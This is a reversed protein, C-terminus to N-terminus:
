SEAKSAFFGVHDLKCVVSNNCWIRLYPSPIVPLDLCHRIPRSFDIDASFPCLSSNIQEREEHDLQIQTRPNNVGPTVLMCFSILYLSLPSFSSACCLFSLSTSSNLLMSHTYPLALVILWKNGRRTIQVTAVSCFGPRPDRAFILM